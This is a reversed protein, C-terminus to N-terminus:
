YFKNPEDFGISDYINDTFFMDQHQDQGQYENSHTPNINHAASLSNDSPINFETTPAHSYYMDSDNSAHLHGTTDAYFVNKNNPSSKKGYSNYNNYNGRGTNNNYYGSGRGPTGRGSHPHFTHRNHSYNNQFNRGSNQGGYERLPVQQPSTDQFPRRYDNKNTNRWHNGNSYPQHRGNNRGFNGLNRKIRQSNQQKSNMISEQTSMYRTLQQYTYNPDGLESHATAAFSLQWQPVMMNFLAYKITNEDYVMNGNSGPLYQTYKNVIILRNALEKVTTKYSKKYTDMYRKQDAYATPDTFSGILENVLIFFNNQTRHNIGLLLNDYTELVIDELCKRFETYMMREPLSLSDPQCAEIFSICLRILIEIDDDHAILMKASRKENYVQPNGGLLVTVNVNHHLTVTRLDKDDKKKHFPIVPEKLIANLASM